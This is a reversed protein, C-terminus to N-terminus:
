EGMCTTMGTRCAANEGKSLCISISKSLLAIIFFSYKKKSNLEVEKSVFAVFGGKDGSRRVFSGNVSHKV